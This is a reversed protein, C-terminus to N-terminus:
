LQGQIQKIFVMDPRQCQHYQLCKNSLEDLTTCHIITNKIITQLIRGFSYIDSLFSQKCIGDRLDPAIHCHHQKYKEKEKQSLKYFRGKSVECAKGFDIIIPNFNCNSLVINDSKLDNHIIKYRTHLHDLGNIIEKIVTLWNVGVIAEKIEPLQAFLARDITVSHNGMGHYSLIISPTDGICVGFLYPLNRHAFRTLVNFCNM